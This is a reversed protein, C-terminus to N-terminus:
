STCSQHDLYLVYGRHRITQLYLPHRPNEGLKQRLRSILVDLARDQREITHDERMILKRLVNDERSTLPIITSGRMLAHRAMHYSFPGFRVCSNKQGSRRLIARLRLILEYPNFPKGLYDDAGLELAGIKDEDSQLATLMLTPPGGSTAKIKKLLDLGNERDLMIDLVVINFAYTELLYWAQDLGAATTARFHHERLYSGLLDRLGDDDDVVLVHQVTM